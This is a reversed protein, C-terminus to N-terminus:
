SYHAKLVGSAQKSESMTYSKRLHHKRTVSVTKKPLSSQSNKYKLNFYRSVVLYSDACQETINLQFYVIKLHTPQNESAIINWECDLDMGEFM